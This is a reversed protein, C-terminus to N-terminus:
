TETLKLHIVMQERTENLGANAKFLHQLITSSHERLLNVATYNGKWM